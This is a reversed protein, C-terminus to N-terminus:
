TKINVFFIDLVVIKKLGQNPSKSLCDKELRLQSTSADHVEICNLKILDTHSIKKKTVMFSIRTFVYVDDLKAHHRM